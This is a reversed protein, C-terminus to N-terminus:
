WCGHLCCLAAPNSGDNDMASVALMGALDHLMGATIHVDFM